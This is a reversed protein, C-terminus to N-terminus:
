EIRSPVVLGGAPAYKEPKSLMSKLSDEYDGSSFGQGALLASINDLDICDISVKYDRSFSDRSSFVENDSQFTSGYGVKAIGKVKQFLKYKVAAIRAGQVLCRLYGDKPKLDKLFPKLKSIDIKSTDLTVFSIDEVLLEIMQESTANVNLSALYNLKQDTKFNSSLKSEYLKGSASDVQTIPPRHDNLVYRVLSKNTAGTKRDIEIVHGVFDSLDARASASDKYIVRNTWDSPLPLNRDTIDMLKLCGGSFLVLAMAVISRILGYFM